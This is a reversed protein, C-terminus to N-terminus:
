YYLKNLFVFHYIFQRKDGRNFLGCMMIFAISFLFEKIKYVVKNSRYFENAQIQKYKCVKIM